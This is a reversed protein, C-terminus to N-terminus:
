FVAFDNSGLALGPTLLAFQTAGGAANGNSDYILAGTVSNYIIRDSADAAAAGVRFEAASLLSGAPTTLGTFVANDIWITDDAPLFDTIRDVNTSANLTTEFFFRDL